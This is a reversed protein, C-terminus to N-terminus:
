GAFQYRLDFNQKLKQECAIKKTELEILILDDIKIRGRRVFLKKNLIITTRVM